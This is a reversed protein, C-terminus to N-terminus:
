SKITTETETVGRSRLEEYLRSRYANAGIALVQKGMSTDWLMAITQAQQILVETPWDELKKGRCLMDAEADNADFGSSPPLAKPQRGPYYQDRKSYLGSRVDQKVIWHNFSAIIAAMNNGKRGARGSVVARTFETIIIDGPIDAPVLNNTYFVERWLECLYGETRETDSPLEDIAGIKVYLEYLANVTEKEPAPAVSGGESRNSIYQIAKARSFNDSVKVAPRGHYSSSQGIARQKQIVEM